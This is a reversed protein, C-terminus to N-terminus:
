SWWAVSFTREHCYYPDGDDILRRCVSELMETSMKSFWIENPRQFLSANPFSSRFHEKVHYLYTKGSGYSFFEDPKNVKKANKLWKSFSELYKEDKFLSVTVFAINDYIDLDIEPKQNKIKM